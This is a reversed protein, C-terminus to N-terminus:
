GPPLPAVTRLQAALEDADATPAACVRAECVYATARGHLAEKGEVLPVRQARAAVDAGATAATVVANPLYARRVTALLVDALADAPAARVVVVEKPRDLLFDVAALLRPAVTPSIPLACTQVGTV